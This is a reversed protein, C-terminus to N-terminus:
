GSRTTNAALNRALQQKVYMGRIREEEEAEKKELERLRRVM